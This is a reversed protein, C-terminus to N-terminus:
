TRHSSVVLIGRGSLTDGHFISGAREGGAKLGTGIGLGLLGLDLRAGEVGSEEMRM